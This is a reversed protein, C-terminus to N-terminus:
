DEFYADPDDPLSALLERDEASLDELDQGEAMEFPHGTQQERKDDRRSRGRIVLRIPVEEFPLVERFRNLMYRQYQNTFADPQNVVLVITPPSTRIQACFLIRVVNGLRTTPGRAELVARVTRNLQGTPVRQEAQEQLEFALDIVENVNMGDEACIIAIPAFSLGKLEKRLYTEYSEPTIPKGKPGPM